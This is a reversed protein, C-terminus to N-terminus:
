CEEVIGRVSKIMEEKWTRTGDKGTKVSKRCGLINVHIVDKSEEKEDSEGLVKKRREWIQSSNGLVSFLWLAVIPAEMNRNIM